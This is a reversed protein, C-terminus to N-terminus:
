HVNHGLNRSSRRPWSPLILQSTCAPGGTCCGPTGLPAARSTSFGFTPSATHHCTRHLGTDWLMIDCHSVWLSLEQAVCHGQVVTEPSAQTVGPSSDGVRQQAPATRSGPPPLLSHCLMPSVAQSANLPLLPASPKQLLFLEEEGVTATCPPLSASTGARYHQPALPAGM